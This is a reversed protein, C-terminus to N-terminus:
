KRREVAEPSRSHRRITPGHSRHPPVPRPTEQKCLATPLPRESPTLRDGWSRNRYSGINGPPIRSERQIALARIWPRPDLNLPNSHAGM